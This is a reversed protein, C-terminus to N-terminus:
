ESAVEKINLKFYDDTISYYMSNNHCFNHM